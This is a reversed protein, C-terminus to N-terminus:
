ANEKWDKNVQQIFALIEERGMKTESSTIFHQPLEEWTELMATQFAEINEENREPYKKNKDAKTFVLVFPVNMKGLNNVFDLDIAQPEHRIDILVFVCALTDRFNLYDRIMQEFTRRKTKSVKAYGYGPLDALLWENNVLFLNIFQTKGPTGSVKAAKKNGCLMNVLSSKGVNSRGIFAYEPRTDDPCKRYGPFSGLFDLYKILM